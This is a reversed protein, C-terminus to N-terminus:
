PHYSSEIVISSISDTLSPNNQVIARCCCGSTGFCTINGDRDDFENRQIIQKDVESRWQRNVARLELFDGAYAHEIIAHLLEPIALAKAAITTEAAKAARASM